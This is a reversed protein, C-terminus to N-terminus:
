HGLAMMAAGLALGFCLNIGKVIFFDRRSHALLPLMGHGDQVVSSTVLVSLPLTGTAYLTVFLLHPGSEPIIGVLAAVVLVVWRNEAVFSQVEVFHELAAIAVLAGLTWVVLRPVHKRAVHTWFHERFFEDSATITVLLGLVGVIIFAIREWDWEEPGIWGAVLSLVFAILGAAALAREIRPPRWLALVGDPPQCDCPAVHEELFHCCDPHEIHSFRGVVRDTIWGALIGLLILGGTMAVATTPVTALMVFIEDGSTAIMGAVLAGLTIGRQIHLTVLVFPGLCGPTAGLLAALVYQRLRSGQLLKNFNGKTRVNVYEVVLMMVTVFVSIILTKQLLQVALM